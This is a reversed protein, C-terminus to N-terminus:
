HEESCWFFDIGQPGSVKDGKRGTDGQLTPQLPILFANTPVCRVSHLRDVQRPVKLVLSGGRGTSAPLVMRALIGQSEQRDLKAAPVQNVKHAKKAKRVRGDKPCSSLVDPKCLM